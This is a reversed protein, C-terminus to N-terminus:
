PEMAAKFEHITLTYAGSGRQEFATAVLRYVASKPAQFILRANTNGPDIDDNEALKKGAPDELILFADFAASELVVVYTRGAAMKFPHVRSKEKDSLTGELRTQSFRSQAEKLVLAADGWLKHWAEREEAPLTDLARAERLGALARDAQWHALREATLFVAEAKGQKVQQRYWDLDAQLWRCAQARHRAKEQLPLQAAEDGQGLGALAAVRAAAYRHQRAMDRALGSDAQFAKAYLAVASAHRKKFQYSM